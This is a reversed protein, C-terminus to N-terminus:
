PNLVEMAKDVITEAIELSATAAPSPANIVHVVRDERRIVFDDVLWGDRALAQARIGSPARKLHRDEVSPVLRRLSEGFAHRDLSRWVERAGQQWHLRGLRWIGPFSALEVTDHLSMQRWTYANRGLALVANPGAHLHGHISRTVHVGLFPYTPDPVPYILHTVRLGAGPDINYYDGRFPAIVIARHGHSHLRAVRDSWLGACNIAIKTPLPGASTEVVVEEPRQAFGTCARNVHIDGGVARILDALKHCVEGFDVISTSPVQLAAMGNVNPELDALEAKSIPRAEVGNDHARQALKDLLDGEAATTAVILKGCREFVIGQESCFRIISQSGRTTLLAKASGPRYYIGSHIVGSNHGTQHAALRDEKEIVAVRADRRRLTIARATALGVIGGGIVVADYREM